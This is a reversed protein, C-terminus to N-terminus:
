LTVSICFSFVYVYIHVFPYKHTFPYLIQPTIDYLGCLGSKKIPNQSELSTVESWVMRYMMKWILVASFDLLLSLDLEYSFM